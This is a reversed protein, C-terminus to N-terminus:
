AMMLHKFRRILRKPAHTERIIVDDMAQHEKMLLVWIPSSVYKCSEGLEGFAQLEDGDSAPLIKHREDCEDVALRAYIMKLSM